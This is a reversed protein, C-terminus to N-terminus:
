GLSGCKHLETMRRESIHGLSCHWLYSSKLNDGKKRKNDNINLIPNSMDLIYIGNSLTGGAYFVDNLMIHCSSDCFKLHFGKKNLCSVYIINKTLAPVYFCNDLYLCFGSPLNLVYTGIAVAVVRAGNGVRLDFEGKTLKRSDRLGQMDTCIHSGCGTDLVWLNGYSVTNVEIVYIGSPTLADCAVKNKSEIYSKCNRKWHGEKGFHFCTGKSSTEKVKKKAAEGKQKTIKRKKKNKSSSSNVLVVTKGEKVLTPEVTKLLNILEPITSEKDNMRYNLVLQAFSDPLGVLILDISLENDMDFGLQDLRVIYGHIKLAYQVLSTGEQMRSRFLMKSVEISESRAQEHFLEKLHAVIDYATMAEHQKQLGSVDICAHYM